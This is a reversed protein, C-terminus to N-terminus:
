GHGNGSRKKKHGGGRSPQLSQLKEADSFNNQRNGSGRQDEPNKSRNFSFRQDINSM